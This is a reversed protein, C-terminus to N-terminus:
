AIIALSSIMEISESGDYEDIHFHTGEKIWEIKLKGAGFACVYNSEKLGLIENLLEETIEDRKDTEVLEVIRPHFVLALHHHWTYWGAGFGPSYLVAVMGDRIVKELSM